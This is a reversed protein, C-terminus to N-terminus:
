KNEKNSNIINNTKIIMQNCYYSDGFVRDSVVWGRNGIYVIYCNKSRQKPVIGTEGIFKHIGELADAKMELLSHIATYEEIM